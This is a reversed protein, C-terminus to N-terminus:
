SEMLILAETNKRETLTAGSSLHSSGQFLVTVCHRRMRVHTFTLADTVRNGKRVRNREEVM